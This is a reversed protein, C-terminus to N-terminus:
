PQRSARQEVPGRKGEQPIIDCFQNYVSNKRNKTNDSAIATYILVPPNHRTHNFKVEFQDDSPYTLQTSATFFATTNTKDNGNATITVRKLGRRGIVQKPYSVWVLCSEDGFVVHSPRLRIYALAMMDIFVGIREEFDSPLLQSPGSM